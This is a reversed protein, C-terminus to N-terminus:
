EAPMPARTAGAGGGGSQACGSRCTGPSRAAAAARGLALTQPRVFRSGQPSAGAAAAAAGRARPGGRVSERFRQPARAGLPRPTEPLRRALPATPAAAGAVRPDVGSPPTRALLEEALGRAGGM